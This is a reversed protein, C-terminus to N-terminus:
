GQIIILSTISELGVHFCTSSIRVNELATSLLHEPIVALNKRVKRDKKKERLILLAASKLSWLIWTALQRMERFTSGEGAKDLLRRPPGSILITRVWKSTLRELLIGWNGQTQSLRHKDTQWNPFYSLLYKSNLSTNLFHQEFFLPNIKPATATERQVKVKQDVLLWHAKIMFCAQIIEGKIVAAEM